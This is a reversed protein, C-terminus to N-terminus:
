IHVHLLNRIGSFIQILITDTFPYKMKYHFVFDWFYEVGKFHNVVGGGGKVCM